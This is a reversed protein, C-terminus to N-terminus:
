QGAPLMSRGSSPTAGIMIQEDREGLRQRIRNAADVAATSRTLAQNRDISQQQAANPTLGYRAFSRQQQGAASDLARNIYGGAGTAKSIESNVLGPNRLTTKDYMQQEVPAFLQLYQDYQARTLESTIKAPDDKFDAYNVMLGQKAPNLGAQQTKFLEQQRVYDTFGTEGGDNWTYTDPTITGSESDSFGPTFSIHKKMGDEYPTGQWTQWTQQATLAM